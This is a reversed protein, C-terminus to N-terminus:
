DNLCVAVRSFGNPEISILKYKNAFNCLTIYDKSEGVMEPLIANFYRRGNHMHIGTFHDCPKLEIGTQDKILKLTDKIQKDDSTM